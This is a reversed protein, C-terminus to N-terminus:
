AAEEIEEVEEDEPAEEAEPAEAAAKAALYDTHRKALPEQRMMRHQIEDEITMPTGDPNIKYKERNAWLDAYIRKITSNAKHKARFEPSNIYAEQNVLVDSRAARVKDSAAKRGAQMKALQTNENTM